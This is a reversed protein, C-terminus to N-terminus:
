HLSPPSAEVRDRRRTGTRDASPNPRSRPPREIGARHFAEFAPVTLPRSFYFGQIRDCPHQALFELQDLTEVGEAITTRGLGRAIQLIGAALLADEPAATVKSVFGRDIKVTDFPFATLYSLSSYGSGFDDIAVGVGLDRLATLTEINADTDQLLVEETIEVQLSGPALGEDLLIQEVREAFGPSSLQVPSVNVAVSLDADLLRQWEACQACATRLGWDGVERILGTRELIPLFEAPSIPQTRGNPYWRLLAEVAQIRQTAPEVIPQYVLGFENKRLAKRLAMELDFAKRVQANMEDTFFRYSNRGSGKARYMATDARTLLDNADGGGGEFVSIGISATIVLEMGEIMFPRSVSDLVKEAIHGLREDAAGEVMLTFEDGGLRAVVDSMRVCTQLREAVRKLVVDGVMHGLSDNVNKFHDLDLFLVGVQAKSHGARGVAHALLSLFHARNTLGTVPDFRASRTLEQHVRSREVSHRISRGLIEPAQGKVIYDQAGASLARIALEDDDLGSQVIVPVGSVLPLIQELGELGRCDPLGLDLLIVDPEAERLRDIGSVVSGAVRMSFKPMARRLLRETFQADAEDDEILLVDIDDALKM